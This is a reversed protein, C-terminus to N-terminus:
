FFHIRVRSAVRSGTQWVGYLFTHPSKKKITCGPDGLTAAGSAHPPRGQLGCGCSRLLPSILRERIAPQQVGERAVM